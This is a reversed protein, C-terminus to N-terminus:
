ALVERLQVINGEPDIANCVIFTPGQWTETLIEGGLSPALVRVAELSAVTFFFKLATQERRAPPSTITIGSAFHPPIRHVLLQIDASELVVLEETRHRELLGAVAAYFAAIRDVDLAYLIVGARAPGAM